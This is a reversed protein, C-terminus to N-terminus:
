RLAFGAEFNDVALQLQALTQEFSDQLAIWLENGCTHGEPMRDSPWSAIRKLGGNGDSQVMVQLRPRPLVTRLGALPVRSTGIWFELFRARFASDGARAAQFVWEAQRRVVPHHRLSAPVLGAPVVAHEFQDLQSDSMEAEGALVRMIGEEPLGDLVHPPVVEFFGDIFAQHGLRCRQRLLVDCVLRVYKGRSEVTVQQDAGGPELEVGSYTFDLWRLEEANLEHRVRWLNNAVTHDLCAMDSLMLDEGEPTDPWEPVPWRPGDRLSPDRLLEKQSAASRFISRFVWSCLRCDLLCRQYLAYAVFNGTWRYFDSSAVPVGDLMLWESSDPKFFSGGSHSDFLEEDGWLAFGIESVWAKTLGGNDLGEQGEFDVRFGAQWADGPLSRTQEFSFGM